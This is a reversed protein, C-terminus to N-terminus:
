GRLWEKMKESEKMKIIRKTGQYKGQHQILQRSRRISEFNPIINFLDYLDNYFYEPCATYRLIYNYILIKDCDRSKEDTKLINEVKDYVRMIEKKM